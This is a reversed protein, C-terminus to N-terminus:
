DPPHSFRRRLHVVGRVRVGRKRRKADHYDIRVFALGVTCCVRVELAVGLGAILATANLHLLLRDDDRLM